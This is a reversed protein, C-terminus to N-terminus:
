GNAQDATCSGIRVSAFLFGTFSNFTGSNTGYCAGNQPGSSTIIGLIATLARVGFHHATRDLLALRRHDAAGYTLSAMLRVNGPFADKLAALTATLPDTGLDGRVRDREGNPLPSAASSSRKVTKYKILVPPGADDGRGDFDSKESKSKLYMGVGSCRLQTPSTPDLRAPPDIRTLPYLGRRIPELGEGRERWPSPVAADRAIAGPVVGLILGEGWELLDALDLHCQGKEARRNGLTLLRCLRGYAERNTPWALIDPTRDRFVLRCGVTYRFGAEKAAVHGRVVGALTNRDAVAIGALGLEAAQRVLEEPHSGGRLFSFNTTVALEAFATM